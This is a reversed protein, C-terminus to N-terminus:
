KVGNKVINAVAREIDEIRVVPNWAPETPNAIIGQGLPLWAVAYDLEEDEFDPHAARSPIDNEDDVPLVEISNERMFDRVYVASDIERQTLEVM